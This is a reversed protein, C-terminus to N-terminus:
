YIRQPPCSCRSGQLAIISAVATQLTIQECVAANAQIILASM